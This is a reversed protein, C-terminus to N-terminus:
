SFIVWLHAWFTANQHIGSPTLNVVWLLWRVQKTLAKEAVGDRAAWPWTNKDVSLATNKHTVKSIIRFLLKSISVAWRRKVGKTSVGSFVAHRKRRGHASVTRRPLTLCSAIGQSVFSFLLPENLPCKWARPSGLYRKLHSNHRNM